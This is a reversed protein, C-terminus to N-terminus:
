EKVFKFTKNHGEFKIIYIGNYLSSVDLPNNPSITSNVVNKGLIDYVSVNFSENNPSKVYLKNKVPNPYINFTNLISSNLGLSYKANEYWNLDNENFSVAAIDMDTDNDLDNISFSFIQSTSTSIINESSYVGNNLNRFWVLDPETANSAGNATVVDKLGDDDLDEFGIFSPNNISTTLTTRTYTGNTEKKYWYLYGTVGGDGIDTVLIDINNDNDVDAFKIYFVYYLGSDVTNTDKTYTVTGNQIFNNYYVEVTGNGYSYINTIVIDLDLDNDFDIIDIHGPYSNAVSILTQATSFSGGGLNSYWVTQGAYYLLVVLDRTGNNDIDAFVMSVPSSANAILQETGFNGFGDNQFWVIKNGDLSGAVIDIHNDGNVDELVLAYVFSLTTSVQTQETFTGDGNNKYLQIGTSTQTTVVLEPYQDNDLNASEIIYPTNNTETDIPMKSSFTTQATSTALLLAGFLLTLLIRKM